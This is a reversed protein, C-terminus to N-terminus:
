ISPTKPVSLDIKFRSELIKGVIESEPIVAKTRPDFGEIKDMALKLQIPRGEFETQKWNPVVPEKNHGRADANRRALMVMFDNALKGDVTGGITSNYYEDAWVQFGDHGGLSLPIVHDYNGSKVPVDKDTYICYTM